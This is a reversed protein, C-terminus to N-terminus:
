RCAWERSRGARVMYAAALANWKARFVNRSAYPTTAWTSPHLFQYLGSASSHANRAYPDWRSECGPIRYMWAKQWGKLRYTLVARRVCARPQHQSCQKRAVREHCATTQCGEDANAATPTIAAAALM